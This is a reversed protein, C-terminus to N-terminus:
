TLFSSLTVSRGMELFLRVVLNQHSIELNKLNTKCKFGVSLPHPSLRGTQPCVYGRTQWASITPSGRGEAEHHLWLSPHAGVPLPLPKTRRLLAWLLSDAGVRPLGVPGATDPGQTPPLSQGAPHRGGGWELRLLCSQSWSFALRSTRKGRTHSSLLYFRHRHSPIVASICALCWPHSRRPRM